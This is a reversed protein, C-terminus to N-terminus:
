SDVGLAADTLLRGCAAVVAAVEIDIVDRSPAQLLEYHTEWPHWRAPDTNGFLCLVPKALAAALHMVGGDVCILMNCVALAGILEALGETRMSVLPFDALARLVEQAKQDDGPYLPNDANGPSWFLAITCPQIERLSKALSVFKEVPWQRSEGRASIHIGIVPASGTSNLKQRARQFASADPILKLPPPEGTIGLPAGLAFVREVEHQATEPISAVLNVGQHPAGDPTVGLVNKARSLRAFRAAAPQFGPSGLVVLDFHERRIAAAARLRDNWLWDLVGQSGPRHKFKTYALRTDLDPNNELVPLNYSNTLAALRAKPYRMRLAAILPTTCVLDGINDRRIVLIRQPDRHDPM